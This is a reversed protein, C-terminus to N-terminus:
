IQAKPKPSLYYITKKLKGMDNIIRWKTAKSIDPVGTDEFMKKSTALKIRALSLRINRLDRKSMSRQGGNKLIKKMKQKM